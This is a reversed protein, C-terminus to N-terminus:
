DQKLSGVFGKITVLPARLDHFALYTFREIESNIAELRAILDKREAEAARQLRRIETDKLERKIAPLLRAFKTKLIFDHAGARLLEVASEEEIIGSIVIVPLDLGSQHLTKLAGEASFKPLTYDCLIVDWARQSLATEMALRAEVREYEVEYGGRRLERLIVQTDDESDEVILARLLTAM